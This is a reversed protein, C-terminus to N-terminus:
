RSATKVIPPNCHRRRSFRNIESRARDQGRLQMAQQFLEAKARRLERHASDTKKGKRDDPKATRVHSRKAKATGSVKKNSMILSPIAAFGMIAM